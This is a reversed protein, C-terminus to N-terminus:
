DRGAFSVTCICIFRRLFLACCSRFSSLLCAFFLVQDSFCQGDVVCSVWFVVAAVLCLAAVFFFSAAVCVCVFDEVVEITSNVDLRLRAEAVAGATVQVNGMRVSKGVQEVVLCGRFLCCICDLVDCFVFLVFLVDGGQVFLVLVSGVVLIHGQIIVCEDYLTCCGPGTDDHVLVRQFCGPRNGM